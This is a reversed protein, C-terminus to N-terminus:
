IADHQIQSRINVETLPSQVIFRWSVKRKPITQVDWVRLTGDDDGTFVLYRHQPRTKTNGPVSAYRMSALSTIATTADVAKADVAKASVDEAPSHSWVRTPHEDHPLTQIELSADNHAIVSVPALCKSPSAVVGASLELHLM